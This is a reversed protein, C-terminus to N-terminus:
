QQANKNDSIDKLIEDITSVIAPNKSIDKEAKLKEEVMTNGIEVLAIRALDQKEISADSLLLILKDVSASSPNKKLAALSATRVEDKEADLYYKLFISDVNEDGSEAIKSFSKGLIEEDDSVGSVNSLANIVEPNNGIYISGNWIYVSKLAEVKNLDGVIALGLQNALEELVQAPTKNGIEINVNADSTFLSQFNIGWKNKMDELVKSVTTNVKIQSNQQPMNPNAPPPQLNQQKPNTMASPKHSVYPTAIPLSPSAGIGTAGYQTEPASVKQVVSPKESKKMSGTPPKKQNSSPTKAVVAHKKESVYNKNQFSFYLGLIFLVTAFGVFIYRVNDNIM